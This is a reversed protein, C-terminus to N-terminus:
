YFVNKKLRKWVDKKRIGEIGSGPITITFCSGQDKGKSTVSVKWGHINAISAVLYLGLGSGLKRSQSSTRGQYFKRFIKKSEKRPVGIGNDIFDITKKQLHTTFVIDLAPTDSDNYKVANSVINMLLMDFLFGNVPIEFKETGDNHIQINCGRFLSANKKCFEGVLTVLDEREMRTGFNQSEIRALNLIRDINDMLRDVDNLMSSSYEAIQESSLEHLVFTELYLRLSTVPTKLEHTFNYIFNHQLQFLDMTKQYYIFALLIGAMVVTILLTLATITMGTKSPFVVGPDIHFKAVVSEFATTIEMYLSVTLVLFVALAIISCTFIFVPHLYWRAPRVMYM